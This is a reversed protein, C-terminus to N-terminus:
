KTARYHDLAAAAAAAEEQAVPVAPSKAPADAGEEPPQLSAAQEQLAQSVAAMASSMVGRQDATLDPNAMFAQLQISAAAYQKQQILEAIGGSNQKVLVGASAFSKTIAAPLEELSIVPPGSKGGCGAPLLTLLVALALAALIRM